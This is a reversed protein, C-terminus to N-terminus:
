INRNWVFSPEHKQLLKWLQKRCKSLTNSAIQASKFGMKEAIEEMSYQDIVFFKLHLIKKCSEGLQAFLRALLEAREKRELEKQPDIAQVPMEMGDDTLPLERSKKLENRWLNYCAQYFFGKVAGGRFKGDKMHGEVLILGNQYIDDADEDTGSNSKVAAHIKGKLENDVAIFQLVQERAAENSILERCWATKAESEFFDALSEKMYTQRRVLKDLEIICNEYVPAWNKENGGGKEVVEEVLKRYQEHHFLHKLAQEREMGGNRIATFLQENTYQKRSM